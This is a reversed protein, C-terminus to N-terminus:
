RLMHKGVNTMDVAICWDHIKFLLLQRMWHAFLGFITNYRMYLRAFGSGEEFCENM